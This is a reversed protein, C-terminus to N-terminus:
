LEVRKIEASPLPSYNFERGPREVGPFSVWYGSLPSCSPVWLRDPYNLRSLIKIRGPNSGHNELYYSTVIDVSIDRSGTHLFFRISGTICPLLNCFTSKDTVTTNCQTKSKARTFHSIRFSKLESPRVALEWFCSRRPRSSYLRGYM